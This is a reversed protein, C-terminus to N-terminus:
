VRVRLTKFNGLAASENLYVKQQYGLVEKLVTVALDVDHYGMWVHANGSGGKGKKKDKNLRLTWNFTGKENVGGVPIDNSDVLTMYRESSRSNSASSIIMKFGLKVPLVAEINGYVQGGENQGKLTLFSGANLLAM